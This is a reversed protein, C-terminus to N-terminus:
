SYIPEWNSNLIFQFMSKSCYKAVAFNNTWQENVALVLITYTIFGHWQEMNWIKRSLKYLFMHFPNIFVNNVRYYSPIPILYSIFDLARLFWILLIIFGHTISFIFVSCHRWRKMERYHRWQLTNMNKAIPFHLCQEVFHCIKRFNKQTQKCKINVYKFLEPTAIAAPLVPSYQGSHHLKWGIVDQLYRSYRCQGRM